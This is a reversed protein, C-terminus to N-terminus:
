RTGPRQVLAAARQLDAALNEKRMRLDVYLLSDVAAKLPASLIVGIASGVAAIVIYSFPLSSTSSSHLLFGRPTAGTAAAGIATIVGSVVGGILGAILYGLARIGWVRWFQGSVLSSSREVSRWVGDNEIVLAPVAVAWVGWLWIGPAICCVIGLVTLVSVVLSLGVLRWLRSRVKAWVLGLSASRGVVDETVVVILAGTLIAAFISSLFAGGFSSGVIKGLTSWHVVPHNPDSDDIAKSLGSNTAVQIVAGIVAQIVAVVITLAFVTRLNRTVAAFSGSLIEGVSLPRLPICGPKPAMPGYYADPGGAPPYGYQPQGYPPQGYQPQGYPPM